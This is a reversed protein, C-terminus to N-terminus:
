EKLMNIVSYTYIIKDNGRGLSAQFYYNLASHILPFLLNTISVKTSRDLSSYNGTNKSPFGLCTVQHFSLIQACFLYCKGRRKSQFLSVRPCVRVSILRCLVDKILLSFHIMFM